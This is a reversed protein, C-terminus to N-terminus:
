VIGSRINIKSKVERKGRATKYFKEKNYAEYKDSYKEFFILKLPRRNKTSGVRGSNHERLRKQLDSTCGIYLNDDKFSKLIYIAYEMGSKKDDQGVM